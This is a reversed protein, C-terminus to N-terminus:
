TYAAYGETGKAIINNQSPARDLFKTYSESAVAQYHIELQMDPNSFAVQNMDFSKAYFGEPCPFVASTNKNLNYHFVSNYGYPNIRVMPYSETTMLCWTTEGPVELQQLTIGEAMCGVCLSLMLVVAVITTLFRKM